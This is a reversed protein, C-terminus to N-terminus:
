TESLSLIELLEHRMQSRHIKGSGTLPWSKVFRVYNPIKFNAMHKQCHRMLEFETAYSTPRLEVAAAPVERLRPHPASIVVANHVAPHEKLIREIEAAAVNEGGVKIMDKLRGAYVLFGNEDLRGIDGTHLFGDADIPAPGDQELYGQMVNWGRILIEGEGNPGFSAESEDPELSGIRIEVGPFARGNSAIRQEFPLSPDGTTTVGCTETLGYTPCLYEIGMGDRITRLTDPDGSSWGRVLSTLVRGTFTADSMETIYMADMGSRATCKHKEILDLVQKPEYFLPVVIEAGVTLPIPLTVVSGGCHFFPSPSLVRDGADVGLGNWFCHCAQLIQGQSLIAAKPFTTTGSTFQILLPTSPLVNASEQEVSARAVGESRCLFDSWSVYKDPLVRPTTDRTPVLVLEPIANEAALLQWTETILEALPRGQLWDGLFLMELRTKGIVFAIERASYRSNIPVLSVGIIAAGIQLTLWKSTGAMMVGIADGHRLGSGHLAAAVRWSEEDIDSLALTRDEFHAVVRESHREVADDLASRFTSNLFPLTPTGSVSKEGM